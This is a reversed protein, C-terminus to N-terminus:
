AEENHRDAARYTLNRVEAGREVLSLVAHKNGVGPRVPMGKKRGIFTEEVEVVGGQGGM